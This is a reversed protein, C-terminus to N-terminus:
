FEPKTSEYYEPTLLNYLYFNDRAEKHSSQFYEAISLRLSLESYFTKNLKLYEVLRPLTFRSSSQL